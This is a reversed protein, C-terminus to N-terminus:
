TAIRRVGDSSRGLYRLAAGAAAADADREEAQVRFPRGVIVLEDNEDVIRASATCGFSARRVLLRRTLLYGRYTANTV